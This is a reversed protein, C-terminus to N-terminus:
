TLVVKQVAILHYSKSRVLMLRRTVEIIEWYWYKPQYAQYIFKIGEIFKSEDSTQKAGVRRQDRINVLNPSKSM